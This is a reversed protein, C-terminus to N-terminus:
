RRVVRFWDRDNSKRFDNHGLYKVRVLYVGTEYLHVLGVSRSGDRLQKTKERLVEGKRKLIVRVRGSV